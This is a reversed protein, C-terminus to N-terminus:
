FNFTVATGAGLLTDSQSGDTLISWALGVSLETRAVPYHDCRGFLPVKLGVGPSILATPRPTLLHAGAGDEKKSIDVAGPAIPVSVASRLSAFPVVYCNEFGATVNFDPSVFPGAASWGGGLGVGFGFIRDGTRFGARGMGILPSTRAASDGAVSLVTGEVSFAGSPTGRSVRVDGGALSPGFLANHAAVEATVSTHGAPLPRPSELPLSRAPPSYVRYSCGCAAMGIGLTLM